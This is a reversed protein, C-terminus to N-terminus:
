TPLEQRNPARLLAVLAAPAALDRLPHLDATAAVLAAAARPAAGLRRIARDALAPRSVVSEIVRQLARPARLLAGHRRAYRRLRKASLDGARLAADAVEALIEAGALAQHIGQGTFPDFYGAADGVLAAGDAVVDRTPRDFPGSALLRPARPAPALRTSAGGATRDEATDETAARTSAAAAARPEVITAGALRGALRPFRRLMSWYFTEAGRAIERAYVRSDVVLTLNCLVAGGADPQSVPALGACAGPALHMEGMDGVDTIGVVHASLSAKRIRGPPRVLGLRRSVVSRLGDAGVVLRARFEVPADDDVRGTVGTIRGARDRLLGTVHVTRFEAGSALAGRLLVHDFMERPIALATTARSPDDPDPGFGGFFSVGSPAFVQWGRLRAPRDALVADLLGLRALLPSVAASLCDGCPKARPFRERDLLLVAHGRAALLRATVSGAPGAGVVIVDWENM